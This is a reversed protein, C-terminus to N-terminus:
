LKGEGQRIQIFRTIQHESYRTILKCMHRFRRIKAAKRELEESIIEKRRRKAEGM